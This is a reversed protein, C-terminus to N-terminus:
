ALNHLTLYCFIICDALLLGDHRCVMNDFFVRGGGGEARANYDTTRM